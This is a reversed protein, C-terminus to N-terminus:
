LPRFRCDGIVDNAKIAECTDELNKEAKSTSKSGGPGYGSVTQRGDTLLVIVKATEDDGYAVGESWPANPSIVHWGFELGLAIHTGSYPYMDALQDLTGQHDDSLPSVVLSRTTYNGCDKYPNNKKKKKKTAELGWKTNDDGAVPTADQTNYPWKRDGTCNTWTGGPPENVIFGSDMSAYVHRAFPVLGFKVDKNKGELSLANVLDTAADRMAQYKGKSNMSSSYDLVLVIEGKAVTPLLVQSQAGVDMTKIGLIGMLTTSLTANAAVTVGGNAVTINPTATVGATNSDFNAEFAKQGFKVPDDYGQAYASATALAAADVASQMQSRVSYGRGYDVAAGAFAMLPILVIGFLIVTVGSRDRWFRKLKRSVCLIGPQM